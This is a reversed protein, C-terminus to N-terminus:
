RSSEQFIRITIAWWSIEDLFVLVHEKEIHTPLLQFADSWDKFVVEPPQWLALKQKTLTEVSRM